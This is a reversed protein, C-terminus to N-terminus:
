FQKAFSTFSEKIHDLMEKTMGHHCGVLIGGRMVQDSNAYGEKSEKRNCNIFGPQRLINGTFVTRTQIRRKELFIQMETRSFPANDKITLAFALWGTHVTELQSPLIFWDEYKKFFSYSDTFNDVRKQINDDLKKLQVLGFAAGAFAEGGFSPFRCLNPNQPHM